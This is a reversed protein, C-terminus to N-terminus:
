PAARAAGEACAAGYGRRTQVIVEAGAREAEAPTDDSSGGDVVIVQDVVERPLRAITPGIAGAENWAPIIAIVTMRRPRNEHPGLQGCRETLALGATGPYLM